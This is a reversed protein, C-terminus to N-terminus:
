NDEFVTIEPLILTKKQGNHFNAASHLQTILEGQWLEESRIRFRNRPSQDSEWNNDTIDWEKNWM